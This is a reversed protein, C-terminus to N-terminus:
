GRGASTSAPMGGPANVFDRRVVDGLRTIPISPYRARIPLADFAQPVTDMVAGAQIQRAMSPNLPRMAITMLRMAALPVHGVKGTSATEMRFVEVFESMTLNEPGGIDITRSRMAPDVIALEVFRAVDSTSVWNIPNRGRGFVQTKAKQLLPRGLVECWTEM